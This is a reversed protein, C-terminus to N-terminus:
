AIVTYMGSSRDRYIIHQKVRPGLLSKEKHKTTVVTVQIHRPTPFKKCKDKKIYESIRPYILLHKEEFKPIKWWEKKM